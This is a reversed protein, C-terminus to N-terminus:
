LEKTVIIVMGNKRKTLSNSDRVDYKHLYLVELAIDLSIGMAYSSTIAPSVQGGSGTWAQLM